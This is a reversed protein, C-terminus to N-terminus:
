ASRRERGGRHAAGLATLASTVPLAGARVPPRHGLGGDIAAPTTRGHIPTPPPVGSSLITM